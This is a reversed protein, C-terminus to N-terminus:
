KMEVGCYVGGLARGDLQAHQRIAAEGSEASSLAPYSTHAESTVCGDAAHVTASSSCCVYRPARDTSSDLSEILNLHASSACAEPELAGLITSWM